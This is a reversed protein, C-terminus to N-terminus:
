PATRVVRGTASYLTISTMAPKLLAPTHLVIFQDGYAAKVGTFQGNSNRVNELESMQWPKPIAFRTKDAEGILVRSDGMWLGPASTKSFPINKVKGVNGDAALDTGPRAYNAAFTLAQGLSAEVTGSMLGLNAMFFRQDEVLSKRLGLRYLFDDWKQALTLAGLDMDWKLTNSAYSYSVSIATANAPTQIAGAQNVFYIEGLNYNLVYYTGASQTGTGDYESIPSGSYTVTVPNVTSGVQTGQLDYVKRPRCVPFQALPWVKNTGNVSALSESSVAVASYEDAAQLLENFIDAETAENIIRQANATMEALADWQIAGAQTLYRLEDTIEFALKQPRNYATEFTQKVGARPVAQKEYKRVDGAGAGTTDRYSYPIAYSSGFAAIDAPAVFNAGILRYLAERIVTRQWSVPVAVDSVVGSGAALMIRHEEHLERGRAADFTALTREALARQRAGLAGGTRRFRVSDPQQSIGLRRDVQEQLAKIRNSDDVSIHVSGAPRYGMGALQRAASVRQEAEILTQALATIQADSMGDTLLAAGSESLRRTTEEDFKAADIADSLRKTRASRDAALQRAQEDRAALVKAVAADIGAADPAPPAAISIQVTQAGVPVQDAAAILNDALAALDADESLARSAEDFAKAFGNTLSASLQRNALADLLRKKHKNMARHAEEAIADIVSAAALTVVRGTKSESLQVPLLRKIVPRITLGAGLLVCGHPQGQENDRWQESYEASLYQMGRERVAEIGYPTWEVTAMLRDAEVALAVFRAAAGDEPAHCVDLFVDQGLVRADFNRVMEALMQSTIEFRGYRPDTFVGTRTINVQSRLGDAPVDIRGALCRRVERAPTDSLRIIRSSAM